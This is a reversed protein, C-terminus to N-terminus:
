GPWAMVLNALQNASSVIVPTASLPQPRPAFEPVVMVRPGNIVVGSAVGSCSAAFCTFSTITYSMKLGGCALRTYAYALM